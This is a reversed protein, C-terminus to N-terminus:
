GLRVILRGDKEEVPFVDIPGKPEGHVISGDLGFTSKGVSCCQVTETGPVFDLRRKGHTCENRFAHYTGNEDRIV